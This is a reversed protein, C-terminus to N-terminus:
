ACVAFRYDIMPAGHALMDAVEREENTAILVAVTHKMLEPYGAYLGAHDCAKTFAWAADRGAFSYTATDSKKMDLRRNMTDSDKRPRNM